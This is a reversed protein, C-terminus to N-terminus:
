THKINSTKKGESSTSSLDALEVMHKMAFFDIFVPYGLLGLTAESMKKVGGNSSDSGHPLAGRAGCHCLSRWSSPSFRHAVAPVMRERDMTQHYSSNYIHVCVCM